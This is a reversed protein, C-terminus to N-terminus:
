KDSEGQRSSLTYEYFEQTIQNTNEADEEVPNKNETQQVQHESELDEITLDSCVFKQIEALRNPLNSKSSYQSHQTLYILFQGKTQSSIYTNNGFLYDTDPNALFHIFKPHLEDFRGQKYWHNVLDILREVQEENQVIKKLDEIVYGRMNFMKSIAKSISEKTPNPKLEQEKNNQLNGAEVLSHDEDYDSNLIQAFTEGEADKELSLNEYTELKSEEVLGINSTANFESWIIFEKWENTTLNIGLVQTSEQFIQSAKKLEVATQKTLNYTAEQEKMLSEQKSKMGIEQFELIEEIEPESLTNALSNRLLQMKQRILDSYQQSFNAEDFIDNKQKERLSCIEQIAQQTIQRSHESIYDNIENTKQATEQGAQFALLWSPTKKDPTNNM